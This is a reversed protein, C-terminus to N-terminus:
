VRSLLDHELEMLRNIDGPDLELDLLRLELASLFNSSFVRHVTPSGIAAGEHLFVCETRMSRGVLALTEGHWQAAYRLQSESYDRVLTAGTCGSDRGQPQIASNSARAKSPKIDTPSLTSVSLM